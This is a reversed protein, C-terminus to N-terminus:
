KFHYDQESHRATSVNQGGVRKTRRYTQLLYRKDASVNAASVNQGSIRKTRQYTKDVSVNQRGINKPGGIHKRRRYGIYGIRKPASVNTVPVKQLRYRKYGTHKTASEHWVVREVVCKQDHLFVRCFM